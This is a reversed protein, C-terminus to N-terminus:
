KAQVEIGVVCCWDKKERFRDHTVLRHKAKDEEGDGRRRRERIGNLLLDQHHNVPRCSISISHYEVITGRPFQVSVHELAVDRVFVVEVGTPVLAREGPALTRDDRAHLDVGADDPRAQRPVPLGEDLRRLAVPVTRPAPMDPLMPMTM